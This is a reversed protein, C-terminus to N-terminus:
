FACAGPTRQLAFIAFLASQSQATDGPGGRLLRVEADGSSLLSVIAMVDGSADASAEPAVAYILNRERGEGFSMTSVPDHWAQPIPRLAANKFRGDSTTLTGPGEQLKTADITLCLKVGESVNSRVFGSGVVVGEFHDGQNSFRAPDNCGVCIALAGLFAVLARM